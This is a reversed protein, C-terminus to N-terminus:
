TLLFKIFGLFRITRLCLIEWGRNIKKKAQRGPMVRTSPNAMREAAHYAKEEIVKAQLQEKTSGL